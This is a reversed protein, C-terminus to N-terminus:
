SEHEESNFAEIADRVLYAYEDPCQELVELFDDMSECKSLAVEIREKVADKTSKDTTFDVVDKRNLDAGFVRGLHDCADKIALSKAIPLAMSVAGRSVNSMDAKLTGTDKMTQLEAAGVGDHFAWERTVPHKVHVRVSCEVANMLMGTKLVEIKYERFFFKLMLEIKDIPIYLHNSIFPHVKIWEPNPEVNLIRNLEDNKFDLEVDGSLERLQPLKSM